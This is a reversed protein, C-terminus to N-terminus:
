RSRRMLLENSLEDLIRETSQIHARVRESKAVRHQLVQSSLLKIRKEVYVLAEETSLETHFGMGVHVFFASTDDITARCLVKGHGLDVDVVFPGSSNLDKLRKELDKYAAIENRTDQAALSLAAYDPSLVQSMFKSYEELKRTLDETEAM